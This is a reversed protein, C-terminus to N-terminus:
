PDTREVSVFLPAGNSFNLIDNQSYMNTLMCVKTLM